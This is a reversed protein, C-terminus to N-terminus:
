SRTNSVNLSPIVISRCLRGCASAPVSGTEIAISRALGDSRFRQEWQSVVTRNVGVERATAEQSKGQARLLVIQARHVLRQASTPARVIRSLEQRQQESLELTSVARAM